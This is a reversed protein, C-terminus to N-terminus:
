TKPWLTIRTRFHTKVRYTNVRYKTVRANALGRKAAEVRAQKVLRQLNHLEELAHDYTARRM